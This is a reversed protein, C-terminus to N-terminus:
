PDDVQPSGEVPEDGQALREDLLLRRAADLKEDHRPARLAHGPLRGEGRRSGEEVARGADERSLQRRDPAAGDVEGRGARRASEGPAEGRLEARGRAVAADGKSGLPPEHRGPLPRRKGLGLREGLPRDHEHRAPEPPDREGERFSERALGFGPEDEHATVSGVGGVRAVLLGTAQPRDLLRAPLREDHDAVDGIGRRQAPRDLLRLRAESPDAHRHVRRADEVVRREELLGAVPDLGHESGLHLPGECEDVRQPPTREVGENEERGRAGREGRGPLGIVGGRVREEDGQAALERGLSPRRPDYLPPGPVADAHGRRRQPRTGRGTAGPRDRM